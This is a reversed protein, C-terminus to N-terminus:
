SRDDDFIEERVIEIKSAFAFPSTMTMGSNNIEIPCEAGSVFSYLKSEMPSQNVDVQLRTEPRKSIFDVNLYYATSWGKLKALLINIAKIHKYKSSHEEKAFFKKRNSLRLYSAGRSHSVISSMYDSYEDANEVLKNFANQVAQNYRRIQRNLKAKQVILVTAASCVVVACMAAFVYVLTIWSDSRGSVIQIIPVTISLLLLGVCIALLNFAPKKLVRSILTQRVSATADSISEEAEVHESPLGGQIQVINHYLADTERSLDEEQYRNLQDVEEESFNCANRMREATQDLTREASRVTKALDEEIEQKKREWIALDTNAGSSLLQFSKPRIEREDSLPLNLKVPINLRYDPLEEESCIQNETDERIEKNLSSKADRLRDAMDQFEDTMAAKNMITRVTYLRYAQLFASDIDNVSLLMVSFWFNFDDAEKQIPGQNTIDYVVFRCLSPYQNRKWFESSDSERHYTWTEGIGNDTKDKKRLTILIISSPMKGDFQYKDVLREHALKRQDNDIPVYITRPAKHPERIVQPRFEVELPPVGGLMQTLRVVPVPNENVSGASDKNITFDFPNRPDSEFSAMCNDDIFRVIIARWEEKADTLSSLEPLATDITTGSENWKCVSIRNNNLADAFIPQFQSFCEITKANM